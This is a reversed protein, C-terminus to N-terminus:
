GGIAWRDGPRTVRLAATEGVARREDGDRAPWARVRRSSRGTRGHPRAAPLIGVSGRHAIAQLSAADSKITAGTPRVGAGALLGFYFAARRLGSPARKRATIGGAADPADALGIGSQNGWLKGWM